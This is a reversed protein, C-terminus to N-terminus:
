LSPTRSIWSQFFFTKPPIQSLLTYPNPVVPYIPNVAASIKRLDQFLRFCRNSKRVPLIPNNYPSNGPMLLHSTKLQEITPKLGM